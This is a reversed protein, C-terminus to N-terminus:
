FLGSVMNILASNFGATENWYWMGRVMDFMLLACLAMFVTSVAVGAFTGASWEAEIPAVMRAGVPAGFDTRSEGEEFSEEFDADEADFVDLEEGAELDEGLELEDEGTELDFASEGLVVEESSEPQRGKRVVTAATQELDDEDELMIVSTTDQDEGGLDYDSQDDALLPVEVDTKALDDKFPVELMPSTVAMEDKKRGKKKTSSDGTKLQIGSDGALSLGSDSPSLKVSSDSVLSLGSDGTALTLSSDHGELSIGSDAPTELAIGSDGALAIGSDGPLLVSSDDWLVSDDSKEEEGLGLTISDSAAVLTVDSDSGEETLAPGILKVDSDSGPAPALRVDSDSDHDVLKVDSDSVAGQAAPQDTVLRVDSDSDSDAAAVPLEGSLEHLDQDLVLRVDSDSAKDKKRIITPQESLDADSPEDEDMMLPVDPNSDAQRSRLLEEVDESKFKWTGRDAFGRLEGRDRLRNLEETGVGLQAAAEELSLYKKSM